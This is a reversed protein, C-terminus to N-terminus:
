MSLTFTPCDTRCNTVMWRCDYVAEHWEDFHDTISSLVLKILPAVAPRASPSAGSDVARYPPIGHANFEAALPDDGTPRPYHQRPDGWRMQVTTKLAECAEPQLPHGSCSKFTLKRLNPANWSEDTQQALFSLTSLMVDNGVVDLEVLTPLGGTQFQACHGRVPSAPPASSECVLAACYGSAKPCYKQGYRLQTGLFRVFLRVGAPTSM